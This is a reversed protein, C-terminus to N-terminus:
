PQGHGNKSRRRYAKQRCASGCYRSDARGTTIQEGCTECPQGSGTNAAAVRANRSSTLSVSCAVSCTVRKLRPDAGRVVLQGCAACPTPPLEPVSGNFAGALWLWEFGKTSRRGPDRIGSRYCGQCILTRAYWSRRGKRHQAEVLYATRSTLDTGCMPCARTNPM